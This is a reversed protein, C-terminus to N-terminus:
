CTAMSSFAGAHILYISLASMLVSSWLLTKISAIVSPCKSNKLSIAYEGDLRNLNDIYLNFALGFRHVTAVGMVSVLITFLLVMQAVLPGSAYFTNMSRFQEYHEHYVEKVSPLPNPDVESTM